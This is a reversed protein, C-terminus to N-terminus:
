NPKEDTVIALGVKNTPEHQSKNKLKGKQEKVHQEIEGLALAPFEAAARELEQDTHDLERQRIKKLIATFQLLEEPLCFYPVSHEMMEDVGAQIKLVHKRVTKRAKKIQHASGYPDEVERYKRQYCAFCLGKAHHAKQEKCEECTILRM